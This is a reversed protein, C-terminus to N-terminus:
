DIVKQFNPQKILKLLKEPDNNILKINFRNLVNEMSKGFITNNMLKFLDKELDNKSKKRLETNLDIYEKLFLKEDFTLIGHVKTVKLGLKLYYELNKYYVEYNKKPLLDLILKKDAASYKNNLKDNLYKQYESLM